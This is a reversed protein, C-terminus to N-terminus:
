IVMCGVPVGGRCLPMTATSKWGAKEGFAHWPATIPDNLFDQTWQPQNRRIATGTLGRGYTDNEDVSMPISRFFGLDFAGGAVAM